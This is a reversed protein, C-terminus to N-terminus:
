AREEREIINQPVIMKKVLMLPKQRRGLFGISACCQTQVSGKERKRQLVLSVNLIVFVLSPNHARKIQRFTCSFHFLDLTPLTQRRTALTKTSRGYARNSLMEPSTSAITSGARKRAMARKSGKNVVWGM